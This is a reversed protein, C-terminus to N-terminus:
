HTMMDIFIDVGEKTDIAWVDCGAAKMKKIERAQHADPALDPRKCEVWAHRKTKAWFCFRDPCGRRGAWIAKRIEGGTEEVRKVLYNEIVLELPTRKM